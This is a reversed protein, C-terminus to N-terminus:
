AAGLFSRVADAVTGPVTVHAFHAQEPIEVRTAAPLREALFRTADVQYQATLEGLLLLTRQEITTFRDLDGVLGNIVDLERPVTPVLDVLKAWMPTRRLDALDAEDM